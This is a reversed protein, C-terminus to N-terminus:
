GHNAEKFILRNKNHFTYEMYLFFDIFRPLHLLRFASIRCSHFISSFIVCITYLLKTKTRKTGDAQEIQGSACGCLVKSVIRFSETLGHGCLRFSSKM